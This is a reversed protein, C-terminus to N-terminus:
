PESNKSQISVTIVCHDSCKPSNTVNWSIIPQLSPSAITLYIASKSTGSTRTHKGENLIDLQKKRDIKVGLSSKRLKGPKRM